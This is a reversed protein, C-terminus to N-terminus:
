PRVQGFRAAVATIFRRAAARRRSRRARTQVETLVNLLEEPTEFMGVRGQHTVRVSLDSPNLGHRALAAPRRPFAVVEATVETPRAFQIRPASM